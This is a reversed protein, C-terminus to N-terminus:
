VVPEARAGRCRKVTNKIGEGLSMTTLTFFLTNIILSYQVASYRTKQVDKLGQAEDPGKDKQLSQLSLTETYTRIGKPM